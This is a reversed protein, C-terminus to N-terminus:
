HSAEGDYITARGKRFYALSPFTTIDFKAASSLSNIKVFDIGYIDAEDDINELEKLARECDDCDEEVTVMLRLTRRVSINLLRSKGKTSTDNDICKVWLKGRYLVQLNSNPYTAVFTERSSISEELNRFPM